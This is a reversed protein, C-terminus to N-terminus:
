RGESGFDETFRIHRQNDEANVTPRASRVAKVFDKYSLDSLVLEDGSVEAWTMEMAGGDGPSCPTLKRQGDVIV